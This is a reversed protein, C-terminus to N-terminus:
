AVHESALRDVAADPGIDDGPPWHFVPDADAVVTLGRIVMELVLEDILVVHGQRLADVGFFPLADGPRDAVMEELFEGVNREEPEVVLYDHVGLCHGVPHVWADSSTAGRMKM